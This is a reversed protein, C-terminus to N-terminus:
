TPCEGAPKSGTWVHARAARADYYGTVIELKNGLHGRLAKHYQSQCSVSDRSRAFSNLIPATFYKIAPTCFETHAPVGNQEYLVTALIHQVLAFVDLWKHATRKLCGYYPDYGDIYVRTRLAGEYTAAQM